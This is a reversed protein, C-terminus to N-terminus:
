SIALSCLDRCRPANLGAKSLLDLRTLLQLACFKIVASSLASLTSPHQLSCLYIATSSLARVQPAETLFRQRVRFHKLSCPVPDVGGTKVTLLILAGVQSPLLTQRLGAALRWVKGAVWVKDTGHGFTSANGREPFYVRKTTFRPRFINLYSNCCILYFNGVM